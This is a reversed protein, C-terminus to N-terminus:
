QIRLPFRQKVPMRFSARNLAGGARIRFSSISRKGDTYQDHEPEKANLFKSHQFNPSEFFGNVTLRMRLPSIHFSVGDTGM